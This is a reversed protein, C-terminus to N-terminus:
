SRATPASPPPLPASLPPRGRITSLLPLFLPRPVPVCCNGHCATHWGCYLVTDEDGIAGKLGSPLSSQGSSELWRTHRGPTCHFRTCCCGVHRCALGRWVAVFGQSFAAAQQETDSHAIRRTLVCPLLMSNTQIYDQATEAYLRNRESTFWNWYSSLSAAQQPVAFELYRYQYISGAHAPMSIQVCILRGTGADRRQASIRIDM